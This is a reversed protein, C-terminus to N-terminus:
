PPPHAAPEADGVAYAPREREPRERRLRSAAGIAFLAAAAVVALWGFADGIRRYPTARGATPLDGVLVTRRKEYGAEALLNGDPAVIASGYRWDARAFPAALAIAALRAQATQQRALAAWDHTASAVLAAGRAALRRASAPDQADVGLMTGVALGDVDVPRAPVRNGGREGLFWMPRQKPQARTVTGDPLVLVAAGHDPGRLFYPVVLTLDAQHATRRLASGVRANEGPDVWVSAEPWVAIRAGRRGAALTLPALDAAVDLSARELDRSARRLYRNVPLDFEATDYGPQIVAVRVPEGVPGGGALLGAGLLAAVVAAPIGVLRVRRTVFLAALAFSTAVPLFTLLWPGALAATAATWSREQSLYLPGWLGGPDFKTRLLDLAMWLTAPVLVVALGARAGSLDALRLPQPFRVAYLALGALPLAVLAVALVPSDGVMLPVPPEGWQDRALGFPLAPVLLLELYVVFALPVAARGARTERLALSAAAAPVLAMWALPGLGVAPSAVWLLVGSSAAAVLTALVRPSM